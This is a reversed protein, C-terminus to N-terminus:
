AKQLMCMLVRSTSKRSPDLLWFTLICYCTWTVLDYECVSWIAIRTLIPPLLMMCCTSHTSVAQHFSTQIQHLFSQRLFASIHFFHLMCLPLRGLASPFRLQCIAGNKVAWCLSRSSALALNMNTNEQHLASWPWILASVNWMYTKLIILPESSLWVSDRFPSTHISCM